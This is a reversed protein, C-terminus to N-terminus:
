KKIQKKTQEYVSKVVEKNLKILDEQGEFRKEIGEYIAELTILGTVAVFAGLMATNVINRKLIKLAVATADVRYVKFNQKNKISLENLPKNTNIIITGNKRLGLAIDKVKLLSTDLVVAIDPEYIQSRLNIRDDSIRAYAEVPAGFREPGFSPFAQCYKKCYNAAVALIQSFTVAGQGGRGHIIVNIM